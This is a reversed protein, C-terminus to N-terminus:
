PSRRATSIKPDDLLKMSPEDKKKTESVSTAKQAWEPLLPLPPATSITQLKFIFFM